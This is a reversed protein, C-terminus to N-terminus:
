RGEGSTGPSPVGNVINPLPEGRLARAAIAAATERLTRVARPTATAIHSSLVVEPRALIPHGPPIPEPRFVDLGAAAIQGRELGELLADPDVLDGRAANVLLVGRKMRALAERGIMGRTQATAPCHLTIADSTALLVPLDVAKAGEPIAEPPVYPDHVLVPGGFPILRRVVARGIRGYGVVGVTLDRLARMRDLPVALKWEGRSVALHNPVIQRTLALLLALTHDAVEELCYDPVNCVPIGRARAAETDVNDVGIGYRVIARARDMAAIVDANLPAFGTVVVDVGRVLGVLRAADKCQPTLIECDLPHLIAEEIALDPWSFDTFLIKAM